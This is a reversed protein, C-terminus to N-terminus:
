IEAFGLHHIKRLIFVERCRPPLDNVAELLRALRERDVLQRELSPEGSAIEEPLLGSRVYQGRFNRRRISDILLNHAVRYIYGEPNALVEERSAARLHVYTEQVIDAADAPNGIRQEVHRLLAEYSAEFADLLPDASNSSM